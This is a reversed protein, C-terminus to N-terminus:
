SNASDTNWPMTGTRPHGKTKRGPTERSETAAHRTWQLAAGEYAITITVTIAIAFVVAGEAAPGPRRQFIPPRDDDDEPQTGPKPVRTTRRIEWCSAFQYCLSFSSQK